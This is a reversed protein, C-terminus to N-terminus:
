CAGGLPLLALVQIATCHSGGALYRKNECADFYIGNAKGESLLRYACALAAETKGMGMPAEIVYIGPETIVDLAQRQLDNPALVFPFLEEFTLGHHIKPTGFGITEGARQRSEDAELNQDVPFFSEDSGIWDAVSILGALWWLHPSDKRIETEPLSGLSEILQQAVRQRVQEWEDDDM